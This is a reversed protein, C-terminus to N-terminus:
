KFCTNGCPRLKDPALPSRGGMLWDLRKTFYSGWIPEREVREGYGGWACFELGNFM